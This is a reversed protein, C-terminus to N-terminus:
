DSRPPSRRHFPQVKRSRVPTTLAAAVTATGSVSSALNIETTLSAAVTAQGSVSSAFRIETTLAGSLSASGSISSSLTIQTTLAPSVSATTTLSAQLLIDAASEKIAVGVAAVDDSVGATGWNLTVNGGTSNNTRREVHSARSSVDTLDLETYDTGPTVNTHTSRGSALIGACFCNVGSGTVLTMSPDAQNEQLIESDEVETDAAATITTCYLIRTNTGGSYVVDVTQAGTSIGTGLFYVYSRMTEGATDAATAVRTMAVGGYKVSTVDDGDGGSGGASQHILVLVGRPTGVPTHTGTLTGSAATTTHLKSFADFATTM